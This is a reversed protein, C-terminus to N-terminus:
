DYIRRCNSKATEIDVTSAYDIELSIISAMLGNSLYGIMKEIYVKDESYELSEIELKVNINITTM